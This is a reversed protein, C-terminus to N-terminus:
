SRAHAWGIRRGIRCTSRAGICATVCTGSKQWLIFDIIQGDGRNAPGWSGRLRWFGLLDVRDQWTVHDGLHGGGRAGGWDRPFLGLGGNAVEFWEILYSAVQM